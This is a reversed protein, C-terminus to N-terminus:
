FPPIFIDAHSFQPVVHLDSHAIFHVLQVLAHVDHLLTQVWSHILEHWPHVLLQEDQADPQPEVHANAHPVEHL